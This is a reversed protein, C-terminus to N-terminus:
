LCKVILRHALLVNSQPCISYTEVFRVPERTCCCWLPKETYRQHVPAQAPHHGSGGGDGGPACGSLDKLGLQGLGGLHFSRDPQGKQSRPPAAQLPLLSCINAASLTLMRLPWVKIEDQYKNRPATASVAWTGAKKKKEKQKQSTSKTKKRGARIKLPANQLWWRSKGSIMKM